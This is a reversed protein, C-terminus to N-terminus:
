IKRNIIKKKNANEYENQWYPDTIHKRVEDRDKIFRCYCYAYFSEIIHQWYERRDREKCKYYMAKSIEYKSMWMTINEKLNVTIYMFLLM